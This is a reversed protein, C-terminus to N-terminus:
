LLPNRNIRYYICVALFIKMVPVLLPSPFASALSRWWSGLREKCTDERLDASSSLWYSPFSIGFWLSLVYWISRLLGSDINLTRSCILRLFILRSPITAFAATPASKPRLIGVSDRALFVSVVFTVEVISKTLCNRGRSEEFPLTTSTEAARPAMLPWGWCSLALSLSGLRVSFSIM